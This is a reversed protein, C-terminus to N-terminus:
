HPVSSGNEMRKADLSHSYQMTNYLFGNQGIAMQHGDSTFYKQTFPGNRLILLNVYTM